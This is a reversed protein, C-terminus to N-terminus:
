GEVRCGLGDVRSRFGAVQFGSREAKFGLGEM